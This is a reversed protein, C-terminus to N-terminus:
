RTTKRDTQIGDKTQIHTHTKIHTSPLHVVVRERERECVHVRDMAKKTIKGRSPQIRGCQRSSSLLVSNDRAYQFFACQTHTHKKRRGVWVSSSSCCVVCRLLLWRCSRGLAFTPILVPLGMQQQQGSVFFSRSSHTTMRPSSSGSHRFSISACLSHRRASPNSTFYYLPFLYSCDCGRLRTRFLQFDLHYICMKVVNVGLITLISKVFPNRKLFFCQYLFL